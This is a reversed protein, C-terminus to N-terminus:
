MVASSQLGDEFVTDSDSEEKALTVNTGDTPEESREEITELSTKHKGDIDDTGDATWSAREIDEPLQFRPNISLAMSRLLKNQAELMTVVAKNRKKNKILEERLEIFETSKCEEALPEPPGEAYRAQLWEMVRRPLAFIILIRAIQGAAGYSIRSYFVLGLKDDAFIALM